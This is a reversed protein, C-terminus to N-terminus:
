QPALMSLLARVEEAEAPKPVHTFFGAAISRKPDPARDRDSLAILAPREPQSLEKLRAAVAWGDMHPMALDLVVVHPWWAAAVAVASEGSYAVKGDYGWHCVLRVLQDATDKYAHAVLVRCQKIRQLDRAEILRGAEMAKSATAAKAFITGVRRTKLLFLHTQKKVTLFALTCLSKARTGRV